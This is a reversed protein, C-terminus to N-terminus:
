DASKERSVSASSIPQDAHENMYLRAVVSPNEPEIKLAVRSNALKNYSDDIASFVNENKELAESLLTRRLYQDKPVVGDPFHSCAQNLLSLLNELKLEAIAEKAEATFAGAANYFFQEFGGNNVERDVLEVLYLVQCPYSLNELHPGGESAFVRDVMAIWLSQDPDKQLLADGIILLAPEPERKRQSDRGLFKV